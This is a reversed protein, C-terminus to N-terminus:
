YAPKQKKLILGSILGLVLGIIINMILIFPYTLWAFGKQMEIGQDIQEETLNPNDAMAQVKGIEYMKDMYGPEIVNSLLFFYILGIIGAILAIGTGIKLAESITLYGGNAKKYQFIGLFIAAVTLVLSIGRIAWGQDYHMDMSFLMLGFVVSVVGLLVGFNLAYKGTKPENQEM